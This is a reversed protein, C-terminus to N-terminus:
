KAGAKKKVPRIMLKSWRPVAMLSNGKSELVGTDIIDKDKICWPIEHLCICYCGVTRNEDDFYVSCTNSTWYAGYVVDIGDEKGLEDNWGPLFISNGNKATVKYGLTGNIRTIEWECDCILECFDFFTPLQWGNGLNRHVIDIEKGAINHSPELGGYMTLCTEIDIYNDDNPDDAQFKLDGTPDGWGCYIGVGTPDNAYLNYSGWLVSGGMDVAVPETPAVRHRVIEYEQAFSKQTFICCLGICFM